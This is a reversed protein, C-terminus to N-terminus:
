HTNLFDSCEIITRQLPDQKLIFILIIITRKNAFTERTNAFIKRNNEFTQRNKMAFTKREIKFTFYLFLKSMAIRVIDYVTFNYM